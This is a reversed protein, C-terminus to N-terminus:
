GAGSTSSGSRDTYVNYSLGARSVIAGDYLAVMPRMNSRKIAAKAASAALVITDPLKEDLFYPHLFCALNYKIAMVYGPPLSVATNLAAFDTLQLYSDWYATYGITPWPTFNMIGLPYQNDYFLTDPFDSTVINSTNGYMNWKDRPVVEIGYKNGNFDVIYAAGPGTILRIPRTMNFDGGPGITYRQKGPILPASQEVIAYTTLSENSWMDMMDNLVTLGLQADAGTMPEGADYVSLMQYAGLILDNATAM